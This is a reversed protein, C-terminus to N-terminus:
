KQAGAVLEDVTTFPTEPSVVLICPALAAIGVAEFDTGRYGIDSRMIENVVLVANGGLLLTYGDADARAAHAGAIAGSAGPRNEVVVPQGLTATMKEAFTRAVL